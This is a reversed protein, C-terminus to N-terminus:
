CADICADVHRGDISPSCTGTFPSCNVSPSKIERPYCLNLMLTVLAPGPQYHFRQGRYGQMGRTM